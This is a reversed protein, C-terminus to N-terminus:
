QWNPDYSFIETKYSNYQVMQQQLFNFAFTTQLIPAIKNLGWNYISSLILWENEM